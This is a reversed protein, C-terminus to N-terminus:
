SHDTLGMPQFFYGGAPKNMFVNGIPQWRCGAHAIDPSEAIVDNVRDELLDVSRAYVIRYLHIM